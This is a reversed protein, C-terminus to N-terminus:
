SNCSQLNSQCSTKIGAAQHKSMIKKTNRWMPLERGKQTQLMVNGHGNKDCAQSRSGTRRAELAERWKSGKHAPAGAPLALLWRLLIGMQENLPFIKGDKCVFNGWKAPVDRLKQLIHVQHWNGPSQTCLRCLRSREPVSSNTRLLCRKGACFRRSKTSARTHHLCIANFCPSM